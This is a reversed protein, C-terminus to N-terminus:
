GTCLCWGSLLYPPDVGDTGDEDVLGSYNGIASALRLANLSHQSVSQYSAHLGIVRRAALLCRWAYGCHVFSSTAPRFGRRMRLRPWGARRLSGCFAGQLRRLVRRSPWCLLHRSPSRMPLLFPLMSAPGSEASDISGADIWDCDIRPMLMPRSHPRLLGACEPKLGPKRSPRLQYRRACKM